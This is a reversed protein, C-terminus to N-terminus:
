LKVILFGASGVAFSEQEEWGAIIWHPLMVIGTYVFGDPLQPLSFAALGSSRRIVGRGDPLVVVANSDDAYGIFKIIESEGGSLPVVNKAGPDAVFLEQVPRDQRVLHLVPFHNKRQSDTFSRMLQQVMKPLSTFPQPQLATQYAGRGISVPENSLSQAAFYEKIGTIPQAQSTRGSQGGQSTQGGQGAQRAEGGQEPQGGQSTDDLVAAKIYWAGDAGRDLAEVNTGAPGFARPRYSRVSFDRLDLTVLPEAPLPTVPSVSTESAVAPATVSSVASTTVSTLDAFYPDRAVLLAPMPLSSELELESPPLLVMTMSSCSSVAEGGAIRYLALNGEASEEFVLFGDRNLGGIATSGTIVFGILRPAITWPAFPLVQSDAPGSILGLSEQAVEYWVPSTTDTQLFVQVPAPRKSVSESSRPVDKTCGAILFLMLFGCVWRHHVAM